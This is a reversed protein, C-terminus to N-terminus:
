SKRWIHTSRPAEIHIRMESTPKRNQRQVWFRACQSEIIRDVNCSMRFEEGNLKFRVFDDFVALVELRQASSEDRSEDGFYIKQTNSLGFTLAM